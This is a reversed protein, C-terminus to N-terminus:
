KEAHRRVMQALEKARIGTQSAWNSDLMEDSAWEYNRQLLAIRTDKFSLLNNFGLNYAMIIIAVQIDEPHKDLDPLFKTADWYATQISFHYMSMIDEESLSLGSFVTELDIGIEKLFQRNHEEELNFGIGVTRNGKSDLYVSDRYDEQHRVLHLM